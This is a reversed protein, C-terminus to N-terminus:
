ILFLIQWLPVPWFLTHTSVPHVQLGPQPTLQWLALRFGM